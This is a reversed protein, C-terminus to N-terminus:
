VTRILSYWISAAGQKGNGYMISPHTLFFSSRMRDQLFRQTIQSIGAHIYTGEFYARSSEVWTANEDGEWLVLKNFWRMYVENRPFIPEYTLLNQNFSPVKEIKDMNIVGKM